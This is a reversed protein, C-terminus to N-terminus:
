IYMILKQECYIVMTTSKMRAMMGHVDDCMVYVHIVSYCLAHIINIHNFFYEQRRQMGFQYGCQNISNSRFPKNLGFTCM